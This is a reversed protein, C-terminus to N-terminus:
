LGYVLKLIQIVETVWYFSKEKNYFFSINERNRSLIHPM